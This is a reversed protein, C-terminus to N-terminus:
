AGGPRTLGAGCARCAATHRIEAYTWGAGCVTCRYEPASAGDAHVPVPLPPEQAALRAAVHSSMAQM